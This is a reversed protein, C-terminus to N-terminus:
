HVVTKHQVIITSDKLTASNSTASNDTACNLTISNQYHVILTAGSWQGVIQHQVKHYQRMWHQM